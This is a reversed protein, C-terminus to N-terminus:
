RYFRVKGLELWARGGAPGELRFILARLRAPDLKQAADPSSFAAFPLRVETVASGAEFGTRFANRGHIAYSDLLLSFRGAGRAEFAIGAFGSADAPQVGGRTLPLTLNAFAQPAAGHSAVMLLRGDPRRAVNVRSHDTGSEYSTVPLTDLDTRGNRGAGTDILGTMRVAPLPSPLPNDLAARVERLPVERGAVFVHRVDFLGAIQQDPRGGTLVVDARQGPAIRGHTESRRLIGASVSTAARLAGAPGLGLQSLWGIERLASSGHYVGGIGADTGVGIRVGAAHLRRVNEQLITWRRAALASPAAAATARFAEERAREPPRLMRWEAPLFTRGEQPEYVVLTSVYATGNDKMLRILEEDVLADGIGHGLADVGAAAAIKAGQLTVTHTIVPINAAHAAKVITRLTPLNMSNLDPSRGYRWGDAFVKIVDPRYPLARAMALRAARPTPAELTFDPGWGYETGHGGPVGIRIALSLNPARVAGSGTLERVPRLMEGSMSFDVASTVGHVLYSAYAKPLDDPGAIAPSRLHTHLDHLGPILTLGSADVVRAGRRARVRPGVAVIRQGEILVNGVSAPAGTGDFIRAGRILITPERAPAAGIGVAAALLALVPKLLKM